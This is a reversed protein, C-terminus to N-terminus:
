LRGFQSQTSIEANECTANSDCMITLRLRISLSVAILSLHWCIAVCQLLRMSHGIRGHQMITFYYCGVQRTEVHTWHSSRGQQESDRSLRADCHSQFAINYSVGHPSVRVKAARIYSKEFKHWKKGLLDELYQKKLQLQQEKYNLLPWKNIKLAVKIKRWRDLLIREIAAFIRM